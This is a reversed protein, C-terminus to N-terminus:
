RLSIVNKQVRYESGITVGTIIYRQSHQLEKKIKWLLQM